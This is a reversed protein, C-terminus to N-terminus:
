ERKTLLVTIVVTSAGTAVSNKIVNSVSPKEFGLRKQFLKDTIASGIMGFWSIEVGIFFRNFYKNM